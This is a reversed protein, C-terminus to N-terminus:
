SWKTPTTTLGTTQVAYNLIFTSIAILMMAPQDVTNMLSTTIRDQAASAQACLRVIAAFLAGVAAAETPTAIGFYISGLIIVMLLVMPGVEIMGKLIAGKEARPM